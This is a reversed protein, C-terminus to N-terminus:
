ISLLSPSTAAGARHLIRVKKEEEIRVKKLEQKMKFERIQAMMDQPSEPIPEASRDSELPVSHLKTKNFGAIESLMGGSAKKQPAGSSVLPPPPPPIKGAPPAPPPQPAEDRPPLAPPAEDAPPASSKGQSKNKKAAPEKKKKGAAASGEKKGTAAPEKKKKGATKTSKSSSAESETEPELVSEPNIKKKKLREVMKLVREHEKINIENREQVRMNRMRVEVIAIVIILFPTCMISIKIAANAEEVDHYFQQTISLVRLVLAQYLLCYFSYFTTIISGSSNSIFHVMVLTCAVTTLTYMFWHGSVLICGSARMGDVVFYFLFYVAGGYATIVNVIPMVLSWQKKSLVSIKFFADLFLLVIFPLISYMVGVGFLIPNLARAMVGELSQRSELWFQTAMDKGVLNDRIALDAQWIEGMELHGLCRTRMAIKHAVVEPRTLSLLNPGNFFWFVLLFAFLSGVTIALYRKPLPAPSSWELKRNAIFVAACTGILLGLELASQLLGPM